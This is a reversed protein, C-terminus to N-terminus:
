LNSTCLKIMCSETVKKSEVVDESPFITRKVRRSMQSCQHVGVTDGHALFHGRHHGELPPFMTFHGRKVVFIDHSSTHQIGRLNM